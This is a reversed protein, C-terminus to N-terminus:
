YESTNSAYKTLAEPLDGTFNNHGFDAVIQRGAAGSFLGETSGSFSNGYLALSSLNQLPEFASIPGHLDLNNQLSIHQLNALRSFSAPVTGELM